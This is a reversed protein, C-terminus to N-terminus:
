LAAREQTFEEEAKKLEKEILEHVDNYINAGCNPCVIDNQIESKIKKNAM